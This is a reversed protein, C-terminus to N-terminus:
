ILAELAEGCEKLGKGQKADFRGVCDGDGDYLFCGCWNDEVEGPFAEKGLQFIPHAEDGNMACPRMLTVGTEGDLQLGKTLKFGGLFGEIEETPDGFEGTPFMLINLDTGYKKNWAM